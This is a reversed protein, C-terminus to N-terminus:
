RQKGGSDPEIGLFCQLGPRKRPKARDGDEGPYLKPTSSHLVASPRSSERNDPAAVRKVPHLPYRRQLKASFQAPKAMEPESASLIPQVPM